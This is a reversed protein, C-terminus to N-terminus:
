HERRVVEYKESVESFAKELDELRKQCEHKEKIHQM